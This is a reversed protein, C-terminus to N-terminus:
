AVLHGIFNSINANDNAFWTQATQQYYTLIDPDTNDLETDLTPDLVPQFRYYYLQALTYQSSLFLNQAVAEQSGTLAADILTVLSEITDQFPPDVLNNSARLTRQLKALRLSPNGPDFGLEGLGTGVSLVCIRNATPKLMQALTIGLQAPNNQYIGGDLYTHGNFVYPPLYLPAASTAGAVDVLLDNQGIFGPQKVNSFLVFTNTDDQYSPILVTTKLNQLTNTGFTSALSAYFRTSGYNSLVPDVSTYFQDNQGLIFVKQATNPRNSPYSANPSGAAVDAATRITFIWPGEETFFSANEDPTLGFAYALALIGGISTGCIVDFNQAITAPNIGWQQVFLTMFCNSLYGREGGGDLELIRLTNPDSM